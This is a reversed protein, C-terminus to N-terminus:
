SIAFINCNGDAILTSFKKEPFTRIASNRILSFSWKNNPFGNNLIASRNGFFIRNKKYEYYFMVIGAITVVSAILSVTTMIISDWNAWANTNDSIQKAVALIQDVNEMIYCLVCM